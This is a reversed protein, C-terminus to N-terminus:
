VGTQLMEFPGCYRIHNPILSHISRYISTEYLFLSDEINFPFWMGLPNFELKSKLNIRTTIDVAMELMTWIGLHLEVTSIIIWHNGWQQVMQWYWQYEGKKLTDKTIHCLVLTFIIVTRGVM